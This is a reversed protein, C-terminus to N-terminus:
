FYGVDMGVADELARFAKPAKKKARRPNITAEAFLDAFVENQSELYDTNLERGRRQRSVDKAQELVEEDAFIGPSTQGQPAEGSPRGLKKDIAHGVEHALTDESQRFSTDVEISGFSFGGHQRYDDTQNYDAEVRGVAGMEKAIATQERARELKRSRPITDVGPYDYQDKNRAWTDEDLMIPANFSEDTRRSEPSREAHEEIAEQRDPGKAFVNGPAPQVGGDKEETKLVDNFPSLDIERTDRYIKTGTETEPMYATETAGAPAEYEVSARIRAASKSGIGNITALEQQSKGRLEYPHRIGADELKRATTPGVGDIDELEEFDLRTTAGAAEQIDDANAPGVGGIEVLERTTARQVQKPTTYGARNLKRALEPGVGTIDTLSQEREGAGTVFRDEEIRETADKAFLESRKSPYTPTKVMHHNTTCEM